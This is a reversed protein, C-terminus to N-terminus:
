KLMRMRLRHNLSCYYVKLNKLTKGNYDCISLQNTRSAILLKENKLFGVRLIDPVVGPNGLDPSFSFKETSSNTNWIKVTGDQGGSILLDGFHRLCNIRSSHGRLETIKM